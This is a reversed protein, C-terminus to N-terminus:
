GRDPRQGLMAKLDQLPVQTQPAVRARPTPKLAHGYIIEFTLHLRRGAAQDMGPELDSEGGSRNVPGAAELAAVLRQRWGRGRLGPHRSENLNRGLARLDALLAEANGYTLTIREMDM